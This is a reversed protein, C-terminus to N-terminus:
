TWKLCNWVIIYMAFLKCVYKNLPCTGVEFTTKTCYTISYWAPWLFAPRLFVYSLEFRFRVLQSCIFFYLFIFFCLFVVGSEEWGSPKRFVLYCLRSSPKLKQCKFILKGSFEESANQRMEADAMDEESLTWGV